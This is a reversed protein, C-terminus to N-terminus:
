VTVGTPNATATLIEEVEAATLNSNASLILAAVGAVHPTAMSTGSLSKYQNNPNTSYINAGPAVIYDLTTTGAKNSFSAMKNTNDVAGVAVGWQNALNAPFGPQSSSANGAAMVVVSGKETAYKVADAVEASYGGGLSLNIVNAGNDAAYKIGAAVNSWTGFGGADLVKVPMIKANYAVGTVGFDNKEAAITGAVHTGHGAGTDDDMPDNDNNVFDWGKTDDIFGNGDDDIGNDAIENSNVWINADLDPHNYDVGTDIVAVIVDQGTYGQEWVEPANVMNVGWDNSGGFYDVNPLATSEGLAKAVAAAADVLGYGHNKSFRPIVSVEVNYNGTSGSDGSGQTFPNYSSNGNGSVAVYYTGSTTATFELYSDSSSSEGSAAGNDNFAVQNGSADFLRLYSDFSTVQQNTDIDITVKDGANLQFKVFDVDQGSAVNPNDGIAGTDKFTGSNTSSLGSDIALPITDNPEALVSIGKNGFNINNVTQGSAVNVKYVGNPTLSVNDVLLSSDVTSDGVDVVGLGITYTGATTFTYSFQKYGTQKVSGSPLVFTSNTDALEKLGNISVFAFDNYTSSPTSENTLFNWDFTLTTDAAVTITQLKIASGETANGNGMGDLAGASLGLFSELSADSVSGGGNTILAQYTGQTPNIGSHTTKISINGQTNWGTLNGTEFSGNTVAGPSTPQWGPKMVEAVTYNGPTLNTFSYNGNDDTLTSTEGTDLKGNNNQDLYITWGALGSEGADKLGNGNLDNWKTGQINGPQVAQNGFNINSVTQGSALNVVHIGKSTLSFNDVLLSSDVATDGVDVVGLGITYTGGTTFTHSFKTYGTQKVSGSPLVFTSKTDALESVGNISVFAFDNYFSSPTSENTLFNWDFTLTTGAAVTITQLKIASGETANGNGMGDLAGVSLGLFSELASDTVAGSGSNLLAQYTGQTPNIGSHTTKISINGQTNWGTFNGAEFSGNTVAVSVTGPSTQQWGPQMVEAVTHTGAALNTFSYNGNDDTLTSTEGTDLQGNNNQDLYITWGALGPEGADQVGNGNLDNWKIGQIASTSALSNDTLFYNLQEVDYTTELNYESVAVVLPDLSSSRAWTSNGGRLELSSLDASSLWTDASSLNQLSNSYKPIYQTLAPQHLLYPHDLADTSLWGHEDTLLREEDWDIQTRHLRSAKTTGVSLLTFGRNKGLSTM